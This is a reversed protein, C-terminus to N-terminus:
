QVGGAILGVLLAALLSLWRFMGLWSLAFVLLIGYREVFAYRIAWSSPLMLAAIRSGDLPPIPILNFIALMFNLYAGILLISHAPGTAGTFRLLLSFVIGLICNASVGALSVYIIGKDYRRFRLPNIPVPKAWGIAWGTTLFLALPLLVTGFPDIHALPNLTMRGMLRATDDGSRYAAYAHAYEHIVISFFLIFIQAVVSVIDM